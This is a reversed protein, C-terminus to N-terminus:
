NSDCSTVVCGNLFYLILPYVMYPDLHHLPAYISQSWKAYTNYVTYLYAVDSLTCGKTKDSLLLSSPM